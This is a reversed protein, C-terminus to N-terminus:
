YKNTKEREMSVGFCFTPNVPCILSLLRVTTSDVGLRWDCRIDLWSAVALNLAAASSEDGSISFRDVLFLVDLLGALYTKRIAHTLQSHINM